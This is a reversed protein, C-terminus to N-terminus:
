LKILKVIKKMGGQSVEILYLGALIDAGFSLVSTAHSKFNKILRYQMDFVGINLEDTKTSVTKLTFSTHSPNPSVTVDFIDNVRPDKAIAKAFPTCAPLNVALQRVSSYGCDGQAKVSIIGNVASSGYPVSISLESTLIQEGDPLTWLLANSNAPIAGVSYTINRNPCASNNVVTIAGPTGALLKRVTLTRAVSTGCGNSATVSVTGTTYGAPFYFSISNTGQGTFNIAGAPVTWNYSVGYVFPVTYVPLYGFASPDIYGCANTPGAIAGPASPESRSVTLSRISSSGCDNVSQVSIASTTFGAAFKVTITTDNIGLGNTHELVTTGSQATWIYSSATSVKRITYRVSNNTGINACISTAGAAIAGPTGPLAKSITISPKINIGCSVNKVNVYIVGTVFTDVYKVQIVNTGQGSLILMTAPKSVTWTYTSGAPATVSYVAPPASAGTYPCSRNPGSIATATTTLILTAISDCGNVNNFTKSYAGATSYATGNWTYPLQNSCVSVTTTSRVPPCNYLRAIRNRGIYNHSLFEGGILIKQNGTQIAITYVASDAGIGSVNFTNDLSGDANLRVLNKVPSGNYLSFSGGLLIKNDQQVSVQYVPGNLGSGYQNFLPDATGNTNLRAIRNVPTGIGNSYYQTFEGGIIIKGDSQLGLSNVSNDAGITVYNPIGFNNFTTDRSGNANLRAINRFIPIGPFKDFNGGALIKGDPQIAITNIRMINFLASTTFTANFTTDNSGDSNIRFLARGGICGLLIKGDSQLKLTVPNVINNYAAHFTNDISGNANLRVLFNVPVINYASLLGTILIKGNTLLAMANVQSNPGIGSTNFNSDRSGDSNLRIFYNAPQGNYSFFSGAILIKNDPQVVISRIARNASSAASNICFYEDRIGSSSYLSLGYNRLAAATELGVLWQRHGHRGSYTEAIVIKNNALIKIAYINVNLSQDFSHSFTIDLSGNSNLRKIKKGESSEFSSAYFGWGVLIKNDPQITIVKINGYTTDPADNIFTPDVSGNDNIRTLCTSVNNYNLFSGGILIKGDNQIAIANVSGDAGPQSTNFTADTAGDANLKLLGTSMGVVIKGNGQVALDNIVSAISINSSNFNDDYNGNSLLRAIFSVSNIGFLNFVGGIVVKGDLQLAIANINGNTGSGILFTADKTGDANLRILRNAPSANFTSFSGIVLIKNDPQLIIKSVAGNAGAGNVNFANDKTGDANIRTIYNVVTGNYQTFLGGILIKGDPQVALTYVDSNAGEKIKNYGVDISNFSQDIQGPQGCVALSCSIIFSLIILRKSNALLPNWISSKMPQPYRNAPIM